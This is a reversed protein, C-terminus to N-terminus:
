ALGRAQCTAESDNARTKKAKQVIEFMNRRAGISSSRRNLNIRRPNSARPSFLTYTAGTVASDANCQGAAHMKNSSIPHIAAAGPAFRESSLSANRPQRLAKRPTPTILQMM